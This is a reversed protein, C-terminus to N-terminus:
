AFLEKDCEGCFWDGYRCFFSTAECHMGGAVATMEDESLEKTEIEFDKDTLTIGHRGAVKISADTFGKRDDKSVGSLAAEFEKKVSEDASLLEAFKKMNDTM